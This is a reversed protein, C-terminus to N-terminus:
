RLVIMIVVTVIFGVIGLGIAADALRRTEPTQADIRGMAGAIAGFLSGVAFIWLVSLVIGATAWRRASRDREEDNRNLGPKTFSGALINSDDLLGM